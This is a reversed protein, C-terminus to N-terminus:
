DLALIKKMAALLKEQAWKADGEASNHRWGVFRDPRVLVVGSEAVGRIKAWDSYIDEYDQDWGISFSRIRVGLQDDVAAAAAKWAEGGIGSLITFHGKGALDITSLPTRPNRTNLWVHPLRWGPVTSRTHHLVPDPNSSMVATASDPASEDRSIAPSGTYDHNMEIGVGSLEHETNKFAAQLAARRKEGEPTSASLEEHAAVREAVTPHMMGLASWIQGHVGLGENARKVVGDGVPQRELSYSDLLRSSAKSKLVYAVKWALNYADQVSTNTGLGNVPPHRHVADGLCFVRGDSYRDACVNNIRWTSVDLIEFPTEDGIVKRVQEAYDDNNSRKAFDTGPTPLFSFVWETWPKVVRVCSAAAFDPHEVDPQLVWNLDAERHDILHSLDARVFVNLARGGSPKQELPLGLQEVIRSRGGDAGFLYKAAVVYQQGTLKDSLTVHVSSDKQELSLFETDWRVQFGNLSAHRVLAPDLLTQPLDYHQCPSVAKYEGMREPNDGFAHVRGFERGALSYSWRVHKLNEMPTAIKTLSDELGIDRFCEFTAMNTIHARPTDASTRESSVIIGKIGYFALFCALSAGAPGTGVILVDTEVPGVQDKPM